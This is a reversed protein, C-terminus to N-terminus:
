WKYKALPPPPPPVTFSYPKSGSSYFDKKNKTHVRKIFESARSDIDGTDHHIFISSGAQADRSKQSRLGHPTIPRPPQWPPQDSDVNNNNVTSIMINRHDLPPRKPAINIGAAFSLSSVRAISVVLEM